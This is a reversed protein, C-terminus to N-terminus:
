GRTMDREKGCRVSVVLVLEREGVTGTKCDDEGVYELKKDWSGRTCQLSERHLQPEQFQVLVNHKSSTELYGQLKPIKPCNEACIQKVNDLDGINGHVKKGTPSKYSDGRLQDNQHSNGHLVAVILDWLDLAPKGDLRLGADM